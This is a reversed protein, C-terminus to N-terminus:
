IFQNVVVRNPLITNPLCYDKIIQNKITKINKIFETKNKISHTKQHHSKITKLQHLILAILNKYSFHRSLDYDIAKYCWTFHPKHFRIHIYDINIEHDKKMNTPIIPIIKNTTKNNIISREHTWNIRGGTTKYIFGMLKTTNIFSKTKTCDFFLHGYPDVAIFFGCKFSKKRKLNFKFNM